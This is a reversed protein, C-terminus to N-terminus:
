CVLHPRSQLESTHEESKIPSNSGDYVAVEDGDFLVIGALTGHWIRGYEDMTTSNVPTVFGDGLQPLVDNYNRWQQGDYSVLGVLTGVWLINNDDFYLNWIEGSQFAPTNGPHFIDWNSGDFRYLGTKTGVWLEDTLPDVEVAYIENSMLGSIMNNYHTWITGDYYAVRAYAVDPRGIWINNQSDVAICGAYLHELNSNTYNLTVWGSGDNYVVGGHHVDNGTALFITEDRFVIENVVYNDIDYYSYNTWEESDFGTLGGTGNNLINYGNGIWVSSPDDANVSWIHMCALGSDPDSVDILEINGDNFLFLGYYSSAIWSRGDSTNYINNINYEQIPSNHNDYLIWNDGDYIAVGHSTGLWLNGEQDITVSKVSGYRLEDLENLAPTNAQSEQIDSRLNSIHRSRQNYHNRSSNRFQEKSETVTLLDNDFPYEYCLFENGDYSYYSDYGGAFWLIGEADIDSDWFRVSDYQMPIEDFYDTWVGDIYSAVGGGAYETTGNINYDDLTVWIENNDKVLISTVNISNLESNDPNFITWEEDPSLRALGGSFTAIWINGTLDCAIDYISNSPLPSNNSQYVRWNDETDWFHVGGYYDPSLGNDGYYYDTGIWLNGENDKDITTIYNSTLGSNATNYVVREGTVRDLKVLGGLTGIWLHDGDEYIDCVVYISTYGDWEIPEGSLIVASLLLITLVMIRMPNRTNMLVEM